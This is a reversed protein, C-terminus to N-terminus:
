SDLGRHVLKELARDPRGLEIKLMMVISAYDAVLLSGIAAITGNTSEGFQKITVTSALNCKEIVDNIADETADGMSVISRAADLATTMHRDVVPLNKVSGDDPITNMFTEVAIIMQNITATSTAQLRM